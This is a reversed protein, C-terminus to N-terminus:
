VDAYIRMILQMKQVIQKVAPIQQWLNGAHRLLVRYVVEDRLGAATRAHRAAVAVTAFDRIASGARRSRIPLGSVLRVCSWASRQLDFWRQFAGGAGTFGSYGHPSRM